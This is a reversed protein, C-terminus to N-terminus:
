NVYPLFKGLKAAEEQERLRELAANSIRLGHDVQMDTPAQCVRRLAEALERYTPYARRM